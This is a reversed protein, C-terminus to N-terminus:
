TRGFTSVTMTIKTYFSCRGVPLFSMGFFVLYGLMLMSLSNLIKGIDDTPKHCNNVGTKITLRILEFLILIASSRLFSKYDTLHHWFYRTLKLAELVFCSQQRLSTKIDEM